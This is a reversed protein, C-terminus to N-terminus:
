DLRVESDTNLIGMCNPGILRMGYARCVRLLERQSDQGESGIESFGASIVVLAKVGKRGCSEAAAVVETAPIVIIALDVADPVDEVSKYAPVGEIVSASPNIPYVPGQFGYSLLNGFIVGGISNRKRSAGIVAVARPNFFLKLANVSAITDRREFKEIAEATLSTPFRVLLEGAAVTIKTPFGSERFVDLMAANTSLTEAEFVQVSNAAAVEALQGLLITALGRRQYDDAIAFAVEARDEGTATYFAHGVIRDEAGTLAILGFQRCYDVSAERHAEAALASDSSASMFRLWRSDASLSKFLALLLAEDEPRMVRVRVTSGDRLVVHGDRVTVLLGPNTGTIERTGAQSMRCWAFRIM